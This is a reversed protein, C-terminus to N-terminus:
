VKRRLSLSLQSKPGSIRPDLRLPLSYEGLAALASPLVLQSWGAPCTLSLLMANRCPRVPLWQAGVGAASGGEEPGSDAGSPTACLTVPPAHRSVKAAGPRVRDIVEQATVPVIKQTKRSVARRLIQAPNKRCESDCHRSIASVAAPWCAAPRRPIALPNACCDPWFGVLPGALLRSVAEKADALEQEASTRAPAASSPGGASQAARAAAAAAERAATFERTAM